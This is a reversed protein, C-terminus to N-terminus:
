IFVMNDFKILHIYQPNKSKVVRQTGSLIEWIKNWNSFLMVIEGVAPKAVQYLGSCCIRYDSSKLNKRKNETQFMM